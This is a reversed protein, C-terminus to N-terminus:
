EAAFYPGAFHYSSLRQKDVLDVIRHYCLSSDKLTSIRQCHTRLLRLGGQKLAECILGMCCMSLTPNHEGNMCSYAADTQFNIFDWVVHHPWAFPLGVTTPGDNGFGSDLVTNLLHRWRPRRLCLIISMASACIRAFLQFCQM